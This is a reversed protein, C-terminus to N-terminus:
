AIMLRAIIGPTDHGGALSRCAPDNFVGAIPGAECGGDSDGNLNPDGM